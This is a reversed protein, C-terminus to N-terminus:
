PRQPPRRASRARCIQRRANRERLDGIRPQPATAPPPEPDMRALRFGDDRHGPRAAFGRDGVEGPLDELREAM